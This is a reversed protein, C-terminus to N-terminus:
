GSSQIPFFLDTGKLFLILLTYLLKVFGEANRVHFLPFQGTSDLLFVFYRM